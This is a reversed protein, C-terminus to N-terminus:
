FRQRLERIGRALVRAELGVAVFQAGLSL